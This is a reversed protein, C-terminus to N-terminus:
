QDRRTSLASVLLLVVVLMAPWHLKEWFGPWAANAFLRAALQRQVIRASLAAMLVVGVVAALRPRRTVVVIIAPVVALATTQTSSVVATIALLAVAAIVATSWGTPQWTDGDFRPPVPQFAVPALVARGRRIALVACGAITLASLLLAFTVSRQPQFTMQVVTTATSPPLWWGNFGGAIQQPAGLAHGGASAAWGVNYGEGFILWCGDPCASVTATRTTATRTVAVTPSAAVPTSAVDVASSLVVRDVDLGTLRGVSSTLRHTGSTLSVGADDCPHVTVPQGTALTRLDAATVAVPLPTGDVAVLDTRCGSATPAITTTRVLGPASLERISVPLTTTEAFRRDVTTRADITRVTFTAVAGTLPAPLAITSTGQADPAQVAVDVGQGDVDIHLGTILSHQADVRQQVTFSSLSSDLGVTLTSGVVDTFPSTWATDPDGDTASAGRSAPDGVLRRSAVAGEVGDVATLTQDTARADRRLTIAASYTRVGPSQFERVLMPEPDSRWRDLPDTRLRTLVVDFPTSAGVPTTLNPTRVVETHTGLGLDAFGVASPGTDTGGPRPGVGTIRITVPGTGPLGVHQGPATLSEATLPLDLTQAGTSISVSTIMRNADTHQPQLLDLSGDTRSATIYQGVPNSRDSVVWATDPDGDVAMSPRDEPRYAFPEGYGSAQVTLNGDLTALTQDDANPTAGFVPLRQDASDAQLVGGDPGGSETYGTVDQSSRWDHARDRNSDTLIVLTPRTAAAGHTSASALDAEYLLAEDGHLLGAAAADVVGDGSGVLVVVRDSARLIPVPDNVAVLQVPPLATPNGQVLAHEDVMPINAVNVTPAGYSVPTGLGPPQAAFIAAVTSPLPTRFRDYAIDNPLWVTDVGLYRAVAAVSQPDLTGTQVRDDLAYLLDMVGPSGLPLLDRTILPKTTMGPLPPDVTYGWRFAGFESGPLQLVRYESSGADLAKVAQQWAAPPDQARELAPDVLDGNFLAPLNVVALVVVAFPALWRLRFKTGALAAVLAGAGLALGLNSM